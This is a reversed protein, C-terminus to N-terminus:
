FLVPDFLADPIGTEPKEKPIDKPVPNPWLDQPWLNGGYFIPDIGNREFVREHYEDITNGRTCGQANIKGAAQAARDEAVLGKRIETLIEGTPKTPEIRGIAKSASIGAGIAANVISNEGRCISAAKPYYTCNPAKKAMEDYYVCVSIDGTKNASSEQLGRPDVWGKPNPAYSHLNLGGM